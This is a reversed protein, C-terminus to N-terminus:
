GGTLFVVRVRRSTPGSTTGAGVPVSMGFFPPFPFFVFFRYRGIGATITKASPIAQASREGRERSHPVDASERRCYGDWGKISPFISSVM